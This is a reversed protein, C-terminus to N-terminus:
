KKGDKVDRIDAEDDADFSTAPGGALISGISLDEVAWYMVSNRNMPTDPHNPDEHPWPSTYALNILGFLHGLEHTLTAQAIQNRSILPNAGKKIQDTFIVAATSTFSAGLANSSEFSGPLVLLYICVQSPTTYCSRHAKTLDVVQTLSYNSSAALNGSDLSVTVVKGSYRELVSKIVTLDAGEPKSSSTYDIEVKLSSTGGLIAQGLSGVPQWDQGKSRPVSVSVSKPGLNSVPGYGVDRNIEEELQSFRSVIQRWADELQPRYQPSNYLQTIGLIIAAIVAIRIIFSM